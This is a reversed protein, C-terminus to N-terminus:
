TDVTGSGKRSYECGCYNQRYLGLEKSRNCSKRFGDHKKFDRALFEVGVVAAAQKGVAAIVGADKHPSVSLTSAFRGIGLEKARRATETLRLCYCVRCRKGGEPEGELGSTHTQWLAFDEAGQLLPLHFARLAAAAAGLRARYESEPYINPNYFFGTVSFEDALSEAVGAACPGCCVHLLLEETSRNSM